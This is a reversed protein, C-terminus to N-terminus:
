CLKFRKRLDEDYDIDSTTMMKAYKRYTPDELLHQIYLPLKHPHVWLSRMLPYCGVRRLVSRLYDRLPRKSEPVDFLVLRWKGDWKQIKPEEASREQLVFEKRIFAKLAAYEGRPTLEYKGDVRVIQGRSKLRALATYYSNGTRQASLIGTLPHSIISRYPLKGKQALVLLVVQAVTIDPREIPRQQQDGAVPEGGPVVRKM